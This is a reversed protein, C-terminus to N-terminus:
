KQLLIVFVILLTYKMHGGDNSLMLVEEYEVRIIM